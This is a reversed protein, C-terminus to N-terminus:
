AAKQVDLAVKLSRFAAAGKAVKPSVKEPPHLADRIFETSGM